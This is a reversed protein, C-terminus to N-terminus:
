QMPQRDQSAAQRLRNLPSARIRCPSTVVSANSGWAHRCQSSGSQAAAQGNWTIKRLGSVPITRLDSKWQTPQREQARAQGNPTM